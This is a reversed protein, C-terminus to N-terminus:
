VPRAPRNAAGLTRVVLDTIADWASMPGIGKVSRDVVAACKILGALEGRSHRRLATKVLPQRRPWVGAKQLASQASVGSDVAFAIQALLGIERSIGWAILTPQAGEERLGALIRLARLRDGALLADTLRFVDFRASNAVSEAIVAESIRESHKVLSLKALEQDAALLNGESRDALLDIAGRTLEIGHKSARAAIWRPLEPRAIPWIEVRVGRKEIAKVWALRATSADLKANLGLLVLRDPDDREVLAKAAKAGADGLRASHLRLEVLKREAFLSLNDSQSEFEAWKFTRNTVHLERETFGADRAAMRIQELAEDVLLPEEGAVM